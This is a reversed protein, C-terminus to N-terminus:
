PSAKVALLYDPPAHSPLSFSVVFSSDPFNPPLMPNAARSRLSSLSGITRVRSRTGIINTCRATSNMAAAKQLWPSKRARSLFLHTMTTTIRYRSHDGVCVMSRRPRAAWTVLLGRPQADAPTAGGDLGRGRPAGSVADRGTRQRLGPGGFRQATALHHHRMGIFQCFGAPDRARLVERRLFADVCTRASRADVLDM